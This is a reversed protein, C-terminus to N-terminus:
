SLFLIKMPNITIEKTNQPQKQIPKPSGKIQESQGSNKPPPSKALDNSPFKHATMSVYNSDQWIPWRVCNSDQRIPWRVNPHIMNEFLTKYKVAGRKDCQVIYSYIGFLFEPWDSYILPDGLGIWFSGRFVFSIVM